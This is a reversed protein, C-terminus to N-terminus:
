GRECSRPLPEESTAARSGLAATLRWPSVGEAITWLCDVSLALALDREATGGTAKGFLGFGGEPRQQAMLFEVLDSLGSGRAGVHVATRVLRNAGVVDYERAREAALALLLEPVWGGVAASDVARSGYATSSESTLLLSEVNSASPERATRRANEVVSELSARPPEAAAGLRYLLVRKECLALDDPPRSRLASAATAVFAALGDPADGSQATLGYALIALGAPVRTWDRVERAAEAALRAAQPLRRRAQPRLAGCIWLGVLAGCVLAADEDGSGDLLEAFWAAEVDALERARSRKLGPSRGSPAARPAGAAGGRRWSDAAIATLLTPHYRDLFRVGPEPAPETPDGSRPPQAISGGDEVQALLQSWAGECVPSPGLALSSWSLLLEAVLDWHREAVFRVLLTTILQRQREVADIRAAPPRSGFATLYIVVHTLQYAASESLFVPNPSGGLISRGVLAQWSPLPHRLGAWEVALRDEMVRHVPRELTELLRMDLLRQLRQHEAPAEGSESHAAAFLFADAVLQGRTPAPRYRREPRTAVDRVVAALEDLGAYRSGSERFTRLLFGLEVVPKHEQGALPVNAPDFWRRSSVLWDIANQATAKLLARDPM